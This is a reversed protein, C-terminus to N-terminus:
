PAVVSVEAGAERLRILPYWLELDEYMNEALVAVRKGELPSDM